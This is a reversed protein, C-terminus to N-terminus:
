KKADINTKVIKAMEILMDKSVATEPANKVGEPKAYFEVILKKSAAYIGLRASNKVARYWARDSVGSSLM